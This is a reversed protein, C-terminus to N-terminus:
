RALLLAKQQILKIFPFALLHAIQKNYAKIQRQLCYLFIKNNQRTGNKFIQIKFSHFAMTLIIIKRLKKTRMMTSLLVFQPQSGKIQRQCMEQRITIIHSGERQRVRLVMVEVEPKFEKRRDQKDILALMQDSNHDSNLRLTLAQQKHCMVSQLELLELHIPQHDLM